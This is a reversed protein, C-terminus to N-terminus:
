GHLAHDALLGLELPNKVLRAGHVSQMIDASRQGYTVGVAHMNRNKAFLLDDPSDSIFTGGRLAHGYRSADICAAKDPGTLVDEFYHLLNLRQLQKLLADRRKRLTAAVITGNESWSELASDIGAYPVDLSLYFDSEILEIRSQVYNSVSEDDPSYRAVIKEEPLASRKLELYLERDLPMINFKEATSRHLAYMRDSTDLITGDVDFIVLM